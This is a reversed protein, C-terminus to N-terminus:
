SSWRPASARAPRPRGEKEPEESSAISSILARPLPLPRGAARGLRGHRADGTGPPCRPASRGPPRSPPPSGEVSPGGRSCRARLSRPPPWRPQALPCAPA